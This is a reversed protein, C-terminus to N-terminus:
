NFLLVSCKIGNIDAKLVLTDFHLVEKMSVLTPCGVLLPHDGELMDARFNFSRSKGEIDTCTWRIQYIGGIKAM